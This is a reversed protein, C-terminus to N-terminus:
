FRRSLKANEKLFSGVQGGCGGPPLNQSKSDKIDSKKVHSVRENKTEYKTDDGNVAEVDLGAIKDVSISPGVPAFNPGSINERAAVVFMTADHEEGVVVTKRDIVFVRLEGLMGVAKETKEHLLSLVVWCSWQNEDAM